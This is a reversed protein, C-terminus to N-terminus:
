ITYLPQASVKYHDDLELKIIEMEAPKWGRSNNSDVQDFAESACVCVDCPTFRMAKKLKVHHYNKKWVPVFWMYM